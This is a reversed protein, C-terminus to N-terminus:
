TLLVVLTLLQRDENCCIQVGASSMMVLPVCLWTVVSKTHFNSMNNKISSVMAIDELIDSPAIHCSLKNCIFETLIPESEGIYETIKKNIWPGIRKEILGQFLFHFSWSILEVVFINYCPLDIRQGYIVSPYGGNGERSAQRPTKNPKLQHM